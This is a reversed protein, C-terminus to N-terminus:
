EGGDHASDRFWGPQSSLEQYTGQQRVKGDAVVVIRDAAAISSIRHAVVIRTIALGAVTASVTQQSVEDLASTAEDLLLIAPDRILARALLLAQVQGGSFADGGSGVATDLGMPLGRVEDALGVAALVSWYEEDSYHDIGGVVDRVTDGIPRMGQTVVGLQARVLDIDLDAFDVTDYAVTGSDPVEFGLLLRVITSKGAGTPGTIGVYEGPRVHLDLDDLAMTGRGHTVTVGTLDVAGALRGPDLTPGTRELPAEFLPQCRQWFRALTFFVAVTRPIHGMAHHFFGYASLFAVYTGVTIIGLLETGVVYYVVATVALPWVMGIVAGVVTLRREHVTLHQNRTYPDAWQAMGYAEAGSVRLASVGALLDHTVSTIEAAVPLQRRLVAAMRWAILVTVVIQLVAAVVVVVTLQPSLYIMMALSPIGFAVLGVLSFLPQLTLGFLKPVLNAQQALQGIPHRRLYDDRTRQMRFWVAPRVFSDFRAGVRLTSFESIVKLAMGALATGLLFALIGYLLARDDRPVAVDWVARTGLPTIMAILGALISMVTGLVLWRLNGRLGFRAIQWPSTIPEPLQPVASTVRPDIRAAVAADVRSGRGNTAGDAARHMRYRRGRRVLAVTESADTPTARHHALLPGYDHRWWDAPLDVPRLILGCAHAFHVIDARVRQEGTPAPLNIGLDHAVVAMARRQVEFETGDLPETSPRATRRSFPHMIRREIDALVTRQAAAEVSADREADDPAADPAAASTAEPTSTM